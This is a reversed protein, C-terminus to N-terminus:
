KASVIAGDLSSTSSEPDPTELPRTWLVPVCTSDSTLDTIRWHSESTDCQNKPLYQLA